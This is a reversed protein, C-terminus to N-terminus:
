GCFEEGCGQEKLHVGVVCLCWGRVLSGWLGAAVKLVPLWLSVVALSVSGWWGPGAGCYRILALLARSSFAALDLWSSFDTPLSM